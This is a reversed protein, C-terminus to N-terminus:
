QANAVEKALDLFAKAADSKADYVTIPVGATPAEGLKVSQRIVTNFVTTATVDFFLELMDRGLITRSAFFVPM